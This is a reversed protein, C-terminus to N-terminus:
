KAAYFMNYISSKAVSDSSGYRNTLLWILNTFSAQNFRPIGRMVLTFCHKGIHLPWFGLQSNGAADILGVSQTNLKLNKTLLSGHRVRLAILDASLASLEEAAEHTFGHAALTFGQHDALLSKGTDCLVALLPPIIEELSGTPASTQGDNPRLWGLQQIKHLLALSTELDDSELWTSLTDASIKQSSAQTMLALLLGRSVEEQNSSTAYYAGAPSPLVFRTGILEYQSM